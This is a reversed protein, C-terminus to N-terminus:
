NLFETDTQFCCTTEQYSAVITVTRFSICTGQKTSALFYPKYLLM